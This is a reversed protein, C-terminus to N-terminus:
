IRFPHMFLESLSEGKHIRMIGQALLSSVSLITIKASPKGLLPISDTVILEELKSKKLKELCDGALIAHTCFASVTVAGAKLLSDTTHFLTQGTSIEDDVILAAKNQVDGIIFGMYVRDDNKERRKDMVALSCGLRQAYARARKVGGADPSVVVDFKRKTQQVHEVLVAQAQLQDVPIRFFGHVQPSHFDLSLVRDAGALAIQDAVLRATIPIRPQDKQDSRVYPFYPLVATIRGASAYKATDLMIYLEMLYENVPKVSTQIVFIDDDRINEEIRCFLNDNKFRTHTVKLPQTKLIKCIDQILKPHSTGALIKIDKMM